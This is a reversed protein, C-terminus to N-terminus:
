LLRLLAILLEVEAALDTKEPSDDMWDPPPTAGDIKALLSQLSDIAGEIDNAAIANAADTARNSLANRRGRNANDNPGNFLALNWLLIDDALSRASQELAGTNGDPITPHPDVDDRLGDGDTDADCPNTGGTVEDGDTLTDGDSDQDLPDPCRSGQATDVETGDLLGDGDTDPARPDTGWVAEDIDTLGDNDDDPDCADGIGDLDFDAQDANPVSPCNDDCVLVGDGDLDTVCPDPPPPTADMQEFIEVTMETDETTVSHVGDTFNAHGSLEYRLNPWDAHGELVEGPSSQFHYNIDVAVTGPYTSNNRNFDVATGDPTVWVLGPPGILSGILSGDATFHPDSGDIGASEHLASEDLDALKVHSYDLRWYGAYTAKPNQWTYSMVSYYNPKRNVGDGGGHGLNLTHGFEHMFTGAQQKVTGGPTRWKGLTVMFDDGPREALGSSSGSGQSEGFVCYRFANKRAAEINPWNPVAREAPTGYYIAKVDDFDTFGRPFPTLPLDTEDVMLHLTIGKLGDPNNVLDNPVNAFAQIVAAQADAHFGRGDMSDVEVFLNKHMPNADSRGDGDVDLIYYKTTGDLATYPIGNIEWDDLLGDGDTDTDPDPPPPEPPGLLLMEDYYVLPGNSFLDVAGIAVPGGRVAWQGDSLFQGNYFTAQHDAFLDIEIRIEAWQDYAIPLESGPRFDDVVVGDRFRLEIAWVKQGGEVYENLMIFFTQGSSSPLYMWASFVWQGVNLGFFQYVLDSNGVIEVSHPPSLAQANTVLAGAGPDGDWGRWGGLDHMQAGNAYADSNEHWLTGSPLPPPPPTSAPDLPNSGFAFEDGDSFGDGDTDPNSPNTGWILEFADSLRDNDADADCRDGVGNRDFDEQAPNAIAPCNDCADGRGDFDSDVQAANWLFPCNDSHDGVGDGDRDTDTVTILVSSGETFPIIELTGAEVFTSFAGDLRVNFVGAQSGVVRLEGIALPVDTLTVLGSGGRYAALVLNPLTDHSAYGDLAMPGLIALSGLWNWELLQIEPDTPTFDLWITGIPHTEGLTAQASVTITTPIGVPTETPAWTIIIDGNAVAAVLGVFGIVFLGLTSRTVGGGGCSGRIAM